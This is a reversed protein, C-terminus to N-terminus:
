PMMRADTNIFYSLWVGIDADTVDDFEQTASYEAAENQKTGRSFRLNDFPLVICRDHIFISDPM